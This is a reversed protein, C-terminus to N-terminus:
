RVTPHDIAATATVARAEEVVGARWVALGDFCATAHKDMCEDGNLRAVFQENVVSELDVALNGIFKASVIGAM